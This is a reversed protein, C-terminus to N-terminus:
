QRRSAFDGFNRKYMVARAQSHVTFINAFVIQQVCGDVARTALGSNREPFHGHPIQRQRGTCLPAIDHRFILRAHGGITAFDDSASVGFDDPIVIAFAREAIEDRIGHARMIGLRLRCKLIGATKADIEGFSRNVALGEVGEHGKFVVGIQDLHRPFGDQFHELDAGRHFVAQRLHRPYVIGKFRVAPTGAIEIAVAGDLRPFVVTQAFLGHANGPFRQVPLFSVGDGQAVKHKFATIRQPSNKVVGPHDVFAREDFGEQEVVDFGEVCTKRGM